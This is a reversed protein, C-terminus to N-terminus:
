RTGPPSNPEPVFANHYVGRQWNGDDKVWVQTFRLDRSRAVGSVASSRLTTRGTIVAVNGYRRIQVEDSKPIELKLGETRIRQALPMYYEALWRAKDQMNGNVDTQLYDDRTMRKVTEVDGAYFALYFADSAKQVESEGLISSAKKNDPSQAQLIVCSLALLFVCFQFLRNM